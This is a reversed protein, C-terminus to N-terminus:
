NVDHDSFVMFRKHFMVPVRGVPGNRQKAVILQRIGCLEEPPVEDNVGVGSSKKAPTHLFIVVDADQEIEGSDRLDSLLPTKDARKEIDRSMQCIVIVPVDLDRALAKLRKTVQGVYDNKSWGKEWTDQILQLYDVVILDLRGEKKKIRRARARMQATSIRPSDDVWVRLRELEWMAGDISDWDEPQLIGNRVRSSEVQAHAIGAREAIQEKGMEISFFLVVNGQRAVREILNQTFASKGQSPRGALIILDGRQLGGLIADLRGFRTEVGTREGKRQLDRLEMWRMPILEKYPVAEVGDSGIDQAQQILHEIEGIQNDLDGDEDLAVEITRKAARFLMRRQHKERIINAYYEVNSTTAILDILSAVYVAGGIRQLVGADTLYQTVTVLDVPKGDATLQLVADWIIGHAPHYFMDPTIRDIVMMLAEDDIMCAGLLCQEADISNPLTRGRNAM